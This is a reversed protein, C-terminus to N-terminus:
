KIEVEVTFFKFDAYEVTTESRVFKRGRENLYAEEYFAKTPFRLGNKAVSFETIVTIRPKLKYKEGRERFIEYRGVRSEDWEIKLIEGTAPDVWAKGFLNQSM